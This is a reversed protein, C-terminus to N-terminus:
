GLFERIYQNVLEPEEQQVWHGASEIYKVKCENDVYKTSPEVAAQELFADQSGWIVLTQCQVKNSHLREPLYRM